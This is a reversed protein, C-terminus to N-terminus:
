FNDGNVCVVISPNGYQIKLVNMAKIMIQMANIINQYVLSTFGRRDDESYGLGHIIRM